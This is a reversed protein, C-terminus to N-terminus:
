LPDISSLVHLIQQEDYLAEDLRLAILVPGRPGDVVGEVLRIPVQSSVEKGEQFVFPVTKGDILIDRTVAREVVIAATGGAEQLQRVVHRRVDEQDLVRGDVAVIALQGNAESWEYYAGRFMVLWLVNWEIAGGPQWKEGLEISVLDDTLERVHTPDRDFEPRFLYLAFGCVCAGGLLGAGALTAIVLWLRSPRDDKEGLDLDIKHSRNDAEAM